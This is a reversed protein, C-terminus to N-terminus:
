RSASTARLYGGRKKKRGDNRRGGVQRANEEMRELLQRRFEPILHRLKPILVHPVLQAPTVHLLRIRHTRPCLLRLSGEVRAARRLFPRPLRLNTSYHDSRAPLPNQQSIITTHQRTPTNTHQHTPAVHCPKDTENRSKHVGVGGSKAASGHGINSDVMQTSLWQNAMTNPQPPPTTRRLSATGISGKHMHLAVSLSSLTSEIPRSSSLSLLALRLHAPVRDRYDQHRGM